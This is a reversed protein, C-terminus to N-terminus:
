GICNAEHGSRAVDLREHGAKLCHELVPARVNGIEAIHFTLGVDFPREGNRGSAAM